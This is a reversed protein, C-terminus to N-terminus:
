YPTVNLTTDINQAKSVISRGNLAQIASVQGHHIGVIAYDGNYLSFVVGGSDGFKADYSCRLMDTLNVGDSTTFHYANNRVVGSLEGSTKGHMIVSMGEPISTFWSSAIIKGSPTQNTVTFDSTTQVFAADITVGYQLTSVNGCLVRNLTYVSEPYTSNVVHAATTFGYLTRSGLPRFSRYGISGTHDGVNDYVLIGGGPSLSTHKEAGGSQEFFIHEYSSLYKRFSDINEASTDTLTVVIRNNQEEIGIGIFSNLLTSLDDAIRNELSNNKLSEYTQIIDDRHSVLDNYPVSATKFIVDSSRTLSCISDSHTKSVETLLVVLKGDEQIYAGAYYDPYDPTLENRLKQHKFETMLLQYQTISQSENASRNDVVPSVASIPIFFVITFCMALFLCRIRKWVQSKM